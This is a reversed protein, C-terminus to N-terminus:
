RDERMTINKNHEEIRRKYAAAKITKPAAAHAPTRAYNDSNYEQIYREYAAAKITKKYQPTHRRAHPIIM